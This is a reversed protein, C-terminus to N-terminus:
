AGVRVKPSPSHDSLPWSSPHPALGRAAHYNHRTSGAGPPRISELLNIAANDTLGYMKFHPIAHRRRQSETLGGWVGTKERREMAYTLCEVQVPCEYCVMRAQRFQTQPEELVPSDGFFRLRDELTLELCAAREQWVIKMRRTFM